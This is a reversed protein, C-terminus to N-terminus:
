GGNGPRKHFGMDGARDSWRAGALLQLHFATTDSFTGPSLYALFDDLQELAFRGSQATGPYVKLVIRTDVSNARGSHRDVPPLRWAM